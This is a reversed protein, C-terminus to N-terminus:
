LTYQFMAYLLNTGKDAGTASGGDKIFQGAFFHSYGAMLSTYRDVPYRFTFDLDSGISKSTGFNRARAVAGPKNYMADQDSARSLMHYETAGTLKRWLIASAGGSIDVINQRGVVDALGLYPHTQPNLQSFTGVKGGAADDGSAYDLGVFVRPVRRAQKWSYGAQGAFMMASIDQTGMTGFQYAVEGELDIAAQPRTPGWLRAGVTQRKERGVTGNWVIAGSDRHQALWYADAGFNAHRKTGYLGFVRTSSDRRDMKYFRILVPQAWFATISATPTSYVANAGEYARRTNGWDLSSFFRQKGLNMEFRGGQVVLANANPRNPAFRGEVYLQQVDIEDVDSTRRGGVLERNTSMSSKGLAFLRLHSGAHMDASAFFRTLAFADDTKLTSGPPLAGFNFDNWNEVRERMQGGFAVWYKGQDALKVHRIAAYRDKQAAVAEKPKATGQPKVAPKDQAQAPLTTVGALVVGALLHRVKRPTMLM